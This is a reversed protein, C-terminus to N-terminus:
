KQQGKAQREQPQVVKKAELAAVRKGLANVESILQVRDFSAVLNVMLSATTVLLVLLAAFFTVKHMTQETM